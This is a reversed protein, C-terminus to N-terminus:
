QSLFWYAFEAALIVKHRRRQYQGHTYTSLNQCPNQMNFELGETHRVLVKRGLIDWWGVCPLRQNFIDQTLNENVRLDACQIIASCKQSFMYGRRKTGTRSGSSFFSSIILIALYSSLWVRWFHSFSWYKWHSLEETLQTNFWGTYMHRSPLTSSIVSNWYWGFKGPLEM